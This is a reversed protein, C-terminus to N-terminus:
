LSGVEVVDTSAVLGLFQPRYLGIKRITRFRQYSLTLEEPRM